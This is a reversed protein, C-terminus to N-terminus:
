KLRRDKVKTNRCDEYHACKFSECSLRKSVDSPPCAALWACDNKRKCASCYDRIRCRNCTSLQKM